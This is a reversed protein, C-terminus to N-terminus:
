PALLSVRHEPHFIERLAHVLAESQKATGHEDAKFRVVDGNVVMNLYGFADAPPLTRARTGDQRKHANSLANIMCAFNKAYAASAPIVTVREARRLDKGNHVYRDMQNRGVPHDPKPRAGDYSRGEVSVFIARDIDYAFWGEKLIGLGPPIGVSVYVLGNKIRTIEPPQQSDVTALERIARARAWPNDKPPSPQTSFPGEECSSSDVALACPHALLACFYLLLTSALRGM